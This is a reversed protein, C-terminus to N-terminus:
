SINLDRSSIIEFNCKLIVKIFVHLKLILTLGGEEIQTIVCKERGGLCKYANQQLLKLISAKWSAVIKVNETSDPILVCLWCKLLQNQTCKCLHFNFESRLFARVFSGYKM